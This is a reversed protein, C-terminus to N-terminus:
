DSQPSVPLKSVLRSGPQCEHTHFCVLYIKCSAIPFGSAAVGGTKVMLENLFQRLEAQVVVACALSTAFGDSPAATLRLSAWQAQKQELLLSAQQGM